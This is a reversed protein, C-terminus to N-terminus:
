NYFRPEDFSNQDCQLLTILSVSRKMKFWNLATYDKTTYIYTYAAGGEMSVPKIPPLRYMLTILRIYSRGM